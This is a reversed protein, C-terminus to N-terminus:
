KHSTVLYILPRAQVQKGLFLVYLDM